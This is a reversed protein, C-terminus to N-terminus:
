RVVKKRGITQAGAATAITQFHSYLVWNPRSFLINWVLM